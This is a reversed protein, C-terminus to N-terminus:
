RIDAQTLTSAAGHEVVLRNILGIAEAVGRAALMEGEDVGEREEQRHTALLATAALATYAERVRGAVTAAALRCAALSETAVRVVLLLERQGEEGGEKVGLAHVISPLVAGRLLGALDATAECAWLQEGVAASALLLLQLAPVLRSHHRHSQTAAHLLRAALLVLAAARGVRKAYTVAAAMGGWLEEQPAEAMVHEVWLGWLEGAAGAEDHLAALVGLSGTSVVCALAPGEEGRLVENLALSLAAEAADNLPRGELATQAALQLLWDLARSSLLPPRASGRGVWLALWRCLAESADRASSRWLRPWVSSYLQLIIL